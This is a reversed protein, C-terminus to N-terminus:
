AVSGVSALQTATPILRAAKQASLSPREALLYDHERNTSLNACFPKCGTSGMLTSLRTKFCNSQLALTTLHLLASSVREPITLLSIVELQHSETWGPNTGKAIIM